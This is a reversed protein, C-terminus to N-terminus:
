AKLVRASHRMAAGRLIAQFVLEDAERLAQLYEATVPAKWRNQLKKHPLPAVPAQPPVNKTLLNARGTWRSSNENRM